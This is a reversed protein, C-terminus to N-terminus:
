RGPAALADELARPSIRLRHLPLPDRHTTARAARARLVLGAGEALARASVDNVGPPDFGDGALDVFSPNTFAWPIWGPVLPDVFPDPAPLPDLRAGAEVLIWADSEVSLPIRADFRVVGSRESGTRLAPGPTVAPTTTADFAREVVGNRIVRVEEVPVWPSALVRVRLELDANRPVLTEGPGAHRSGNRLEAEIWPGTTAVMRGALISRDFAVPDLALTSDKIGLVYTRFYGASELTNRHSDSVGTGPLFPVPGSSTEAHSQDLLSFWDRRMEFLQAVDMGNAVEIVDFDINRLGDPNAIGSSGTV